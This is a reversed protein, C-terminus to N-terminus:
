LRSGPMLAERTGGFFQTDRLSGHAVLDFGQLCLEPDLKEIALALPQDNGFGTAVIEDNQPICQVPDGDACFTQDLTLARADDGDARRRIKCGFPEDVTEAAKGLRMRSDVQPDGGGQMVHVERSLVHIKSHPVSVAIPRAEVDHSQGGLVQKCHAARFQQCPAVADGLRRVHQLKRQQMEVIAIGPGSPELRGSHITGTMQVSGDQVPGAHDNVGGYVPLAYGEGAGRESCSVEDTPPENPRESLGQAEGLGIPDDAGLSRRCERLDRCKAVPQQGFGCSVDPVQLLHPELINRAPRM